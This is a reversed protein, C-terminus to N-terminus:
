EIVEEARSLLSQPVTLGISKAARLNVSLAYTTPAQVPLDGPKEGKLIRDIYGAARRYPTIADPGYSMLGGDTVFVRFAYIAPLRNQTTLKIIQQRHLRALRSSTVILGAKGNRSFETLKREIDDTDGADVPKVDVGLSPAVAQIAGLQGGGSRAGPDRVVAVLTINPAIEKLLELWKASSGFEFQTFGTINAGPRALSAVLGGGVPDTVNAFVIPTTKTARQLAAVISGGAGVIVDPSDALVEKVPGRLADSEEAGSHFLITLNRGEVWGAKALEERLAAIQARGEPDSEVYDHLISVLRPRDAQQAFAAGPWIAAGGVFGLFERRRV